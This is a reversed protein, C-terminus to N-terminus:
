CNGSVPSEETCISLAPGFRFWEVNGSNFSRVPEEQHLGGVFVCRVSRIECFVFNGGMGTDIGKRKRRKRSIININVYIALFSVTDVCLAFTQTNGRGEM